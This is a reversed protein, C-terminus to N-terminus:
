PTNRTRDTKPLLVDGKSNRGYIRPRIYHDITPTAANMLLVAFAVGEPYNGWTRIIYTLVGCGLGFLIQGTTTNPSTVPDTAIFFAGLLLGGQLVHYFPGAYYTPNLAHMLFAPVLTGMLMSVPIHWTIVGSVMLAGGGLILLFDSTEGLSGARWGWMAQMSSIDYGQLATTLDTGKTFETKVHGLLSASSVMDPPIIGHWTIALSEWFGPLAHSVTPTVWTTMEVPFSILLMVRAMMAPNFVNQGLGGFVQKGILIAFTTGIVILWWPAWPPLSLALLWGTLIASGDLLTNKNFHGRLFLALAEALLASCLALLWINFAPWGYLWFGFVTAPVLALMVWEMMKRTHLPTHVHPAHIPSHTM